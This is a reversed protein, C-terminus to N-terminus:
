LERVGWIIVLLGLTITIIIGIWNGGVLNGADDFEAGFLDTLSYFSNSLFQWGKDVVNYVQSTIPADKALYVLANNIGCSMDWIPCPDIYDWLVDTTANPFSQQVSAYNLLYIRQRAYTHNTLGDIIDYDFSNYEWKLKGNTGIGYATLREDGNNIAYKKRNRDILYLPDDNYFRYYDTSDYFITLNIRNDDIYNNDINLSYLSPNLDVDLLVNSFYYTSNFEYNIQYQMEVGRFFAHVGNWIDHKFSSESGDYLGLQIRISNTDDSILADKILEKVNDTLIWDIITSYTNWVNAQCDLKINKYSYNITVGGIDINSYLQLQKDTSRCEDFLYQFYIYSEGNMTLNFTEKNLVIDYASFDSVEYDTYNIFYDHYTYAYTTLIPANVGLLLGIVSLIVIIVWLVKKM